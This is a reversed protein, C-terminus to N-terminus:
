GGTGQDLVRVRKRVDRYDASVSDYAERFIRGIEAQEKEAVLVGSGMVRLVFQLFRNEISITSASVRWHAPKGDGPNDFGM